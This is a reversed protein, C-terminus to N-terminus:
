PLMWQKDRPVMKTNNATKPANVALIPFLMLSWSAFPAAPAFTAGSGSASSPAFFFFFFPGGRSSWFISLITCRITM